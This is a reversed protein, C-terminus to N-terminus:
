NCKLVLEFEHASIGKRSCLLGSIRYATEQACRRLSKRPSHELRVGVKIRNIKMLIQGKSETKNIRYIFGGDKSTHILNDNKKKSLIM